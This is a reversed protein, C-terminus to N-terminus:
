PAKSPPLSAPTSPTSALAPRQPTKRRPSLARFTKRVATQPLWSQLRLARDVTDMLLGPVRDLRGLVEALAGMAEDIEAATVVLPPYFRLAPHAARDNTSYGTLVGRKGLLFWVALEVAPNRLKLGTMLGRGEVGSILKPYRQGLETLATILGAGVESVHAVLAGDEILDLAASAVACVLPSGASDSRYPPDAPLESAVAASALAVAFPTTGGTLWKSLIMLDPVVRDHDVGFMHGTRGFGTQVEDAILLVGRQTCHEHVAALYGDPPVTIYGGGLVPELVVAAVSEDVEARVQDIDAYDVFTVHRCLPEFPGQLPTQGTISLAGLTKGHYGHRAAVVKKRSPRARLAWDIAIEIAESGSGACQVLGVDGPALEALRQQLTEVVPSSMQPPCTALQDLQELAARQIQPHAHGPGFVGYGASFDLYSTGDDDWVRTGLGGCEVPRGLVEMMTALTPNYYADYADNLQHRNM